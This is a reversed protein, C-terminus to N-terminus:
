VGQKAVAQYVQLTAKATKEWSFERARQLGRMRFQERLDNDTLLTLIASALGDIDLPDVLVAADGVVEPLSSRNSTIVPVKNAMAELVPLGFGEYVSPFVFLSADRYLSLLSERSVDKLLVVDNIISPFRSRVEAQTRYYAGVLILAHQIRRHTRLKHYAELLTGVNKNMFDGGVHLIYPRDCPLRAPYVVTSKGSDGHDCGLLVTTVQDVHCGVLQIVDKRSSESDCLIHACHKAACLQWRYFWRKRPLSLLERSFRLPILDHITVVTKVPQWAPVGPISIDRSVFPSHFIDVGLSRLLRPLLFQHTILPTLRGLGPRPVRIARFNFPLLDAFPLSALSSPYAIIYYQNQRDWTIYQSVLNFVYTGVGRFRHGTQLPTVDIAIRLARM